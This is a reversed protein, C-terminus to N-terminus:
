KKIPLKLLRDFKFYHVMLSYVCVCLIDDIRSFRLVVKNRPTYDCLFLGCQVNIHHTWLASTTEKRGNFIM